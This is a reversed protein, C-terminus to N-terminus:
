NKIIASEDPEGSRQVILRKPSIPSHEKETLARGTAAQTLFRSLEERRPGSFALEYARYLYPLAEDARGLTQLAMGIAYAANPHNAIAEDVHRFYTLAQEPYARFIKQAAQTNPYDLCLRLADDIRGRRRYEAIAQWMAESPHYPLELFWSLLEEASITSLDKRFLSRFTVVSPRIGEGFMAEIWIRGSAVDDSKEILLDYSSANPTVGMEQLRRLYQLAVPYTKAQDILANLLIVDPAVGARRMRALWRQVAPEDEAHRILITFTKVDPSIGEQKMRMLWRSRTESDRAKVILSNYTEVDPQLGSDRMDRLIRSVTEYDLNSAFLRNYRETLEEIDASSKEAENQLADSVRYALAEAELRRGIITLTNVFYEPADGEAASELKLEELTHLALPQEMKAEPHRALREDFMLPTCVFDHDIWRLVTDDILIENDDCLQCARVAHRVSDGVFDRQGNPLEVPLARGWCVSLRLAPVGDLPLGTEESIEEQFRCAMIIALCCIPAADDTNDTIILWGDGTFKIVAKTLGVATLHPTVQRVLALNFRDLLKTSLKLGAATSKKLDIALCLTMRPSPYDPM